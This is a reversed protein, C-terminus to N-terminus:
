KRYRGFVKQLDVKLCKGKGEAIIRGTKIEKLEAVTDIKRGDHKVIWAECLLREGALAPSRYDINLNVTVTEIELKAVAFYMAEDLLLGIVGGHLLGPYGCYDATVDFEIHSKEGVYTNHLQLGIPNDTGCGFCRNLKLPRM